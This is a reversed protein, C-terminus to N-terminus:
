VRGQLFRREDQVGTETSPPGDPRRWTEDAGGSGCPFRRSYEPCENRQEVTSLLPQACQNAGQRQGDSMRRNVQSRFPLRQLGPSRRRVVSTTRLYQDVLYGNAGHIEVGDFDARIARRAVQRFDDVIQAIESRSLARPTPSDVM